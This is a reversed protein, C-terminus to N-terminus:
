STEDMPVQANPNRQRKRREANAKNVEATVEPTIFETIDEFKNVPRFNDDLLTKISIKGSRETRFAEITGAKKCCNAFFRIKLDYPTLLVNAQIRISPNPNWAGHRKILRNYSSDTGLKNFKAILSGDKRRHCVAMEEKNIAIGYKRHAESVFINACDEKPLRPKLDPGGMIICVKSVQRKVENIEIEFRKLAENHKEQTEEVKKLREHLKEIERKCEQLSSQETQDGQNRTPRGM